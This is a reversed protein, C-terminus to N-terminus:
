DKRSVINKDQQVTTEADLKRTEISSASFM